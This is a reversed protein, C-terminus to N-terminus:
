SKGKASPSVLINKKTKCWDYKREGTVGATDCLMDDWWSVPNIWPFHLTHTHTHTSYIHSFSSWYSSSLSISPQHITLQCTLSLKLPPSPQHVQIKIKFNTLMQVRRDKQGDKRRERERKKPIPMFWDLRREDETLAMLTRLVPESTSSARASASTHFSVYMWVSVGLFVYLSQACGM